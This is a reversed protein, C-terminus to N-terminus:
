NIEYSAVYPKANSINMYMVKISDAGPLVNFSRRIEDGPKQSDGVASNDIDCHLLRDGKYQAIILAPAEDKLDSFGRLEVDVSNLADIDSMKFVDMNNQMVKIEPISYSLVLDEKQKEERLKSNANVVFEGSLEELAFTMSYRGFDDATKQGVFLVRSPVYKDIEEGKSVVMVSVLDGPAEAIGRITVTKLNENVSVNLFEGNEEEDLADDYAWTVYMPESSIEFSFTGDESTQVGVNNGYKDYMKVKNTDLNVTKEVSTNLDGNICLMVNKEITNNKFKFMYARDQTDKIMQQYETNGGLFYNMAAVGLYAPKAGYPTLEAEPKETYGRQWCNVIGWNSQIASVDARDHFSYQLLKDYFGHAKNLANVLVIANLQEEKTCPEIWQVAGEYTSFGVETLFMPIDMSHKELVGKLLTTNSVIENENVGNARTWPYAHVSVADMAKKGNLNEIVDDIWEYEIGATVCGIVTNDENVNKIVDYARSLVKAYTAATKDGERNNWENWVEFHDVIGDLERVVFDCYRAFAELQADFSSYKKGNTGNLICIIKLGSNKITLLKEKTGQPITLKNSALDSEVMGWTLCDERYWNAGVNRMLQPTVDADGYNKSVIQQTFGFDSDVNEEGLNICVSFGEDYTESHREGNISIYNEVELTYIGYKGPNEINFEIDWEEGAPIEVTKVPYENVVSGEENLVRYLSQIKVTEEAMNKHNQIFKIREDTISFINGIKESEIYGSVIEDDPSNYAVAMIGGSNVLICSLILLIAALKKM